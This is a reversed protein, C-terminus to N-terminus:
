LSLSDDREVVAYGQAELAEDRYRTAVLWQPVRRLGFRRDSTWEVEVRSGSGHEHVSVVYTAWPRGGVAVVLRCDGHTGESTLTTATTTMEASRLGFLYSLEYRGGDGTATVQDAVGWQFPLVPPTASAFDERVEAPPADTALEVTGSSRFLPFRVAVGVVVAVVLGWALPLALLAAAVVVLVAVTLAASARREVDRYRETVAAVESPVEVTADTM